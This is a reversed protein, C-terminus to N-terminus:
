AFSIGALLIFIQLHPPNALEIKKISTICCYADILAVPVFDSFIDSFPKVICSICDLFCLELGKRWRFHILKLGWQM